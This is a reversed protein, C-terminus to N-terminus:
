KKLGVEDGSAVGKLTKGIGADFPQWESTTDLEGFWALINNDFCLKKVDEHVHTRGNADMLLLVWEGEPVHAAKWPVFVDSLWWRLVILDALAKSQFTVHVGTHDKATSLQCRYKFFVKGQGKRVLALAVKRVLDAASCVMLTAFRSAKQGRLAVRGTKREDAFTYTKGQLLDFMWPSEDLNFRRSPLFRGWMSIDYVYTGQISKRM